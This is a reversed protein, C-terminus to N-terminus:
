RVTDSGATKSPAHEVDIKQFSLSVDELFQGDQSYQKLATIKANTLKITYLLEVAGTSSAQYFDLEVRKLSEGTTAAQFVQPSAAGWLKTIVIPGHNAKGSMPAALEYTFGRGVIRDKTRDTTGEGKFFGQKSGEVVISFEGKGVPAPPSKPSSFPSTPQARAAPVLQSFAFLGAFIAGGVGVCAILRRLTMSM